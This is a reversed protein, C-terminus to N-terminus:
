RSPTAIIGLANVARGIRRLDKKSGGIMVRDDKSLYGAAEAPSSALIADFIIGARRALVLGLEVTTKQVPSVPWGVTVVTLRALGSMDQSSLAPGVTTGPGLLLVFHRGTM